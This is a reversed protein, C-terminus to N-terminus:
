ALKKNQPLICLGGLLDNIVDHVTSIHHILGINAGCFILGNELDGQVAATLAQTICYPIKAPNCNKICHYCRKIPIQGQKVRKIFANNLARGPMGVPSSIITIDEPTAQIYANKYADSADCEQTTVFRSAVQIGDVGLREAHMVDEHTSIGGALFVPLFQHHESETEAVLSLIESIEDEYHLENQQDLMLQDKSFGLHGGAKPGEIVVFDPLRQYKKWWMRLILSLAKKSSVIPAICSSTGEVLEPLDMPLGAGCIIVDAGAQAAARVHERYDQLAVMVNVGILGKGCAIEKAKLIHKKIARLNAKKEDSKFDPEDYGIQATSIIGIANEAAVAGALNSRSIGVGMGGQILPLVDHKGPFHILNM